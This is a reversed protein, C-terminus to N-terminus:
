RETWWQMAQIGAHGSGDHVWKAVKLSLVLADAHNWGGESVLPTRQQALSHEM